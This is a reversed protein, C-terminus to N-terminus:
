TIYAIHVNKGECLKKTRTSKAISFSYKGDCRGGSQVAKIRKFTKRRRDRGNSDFTRLHNRETSAKEKLYRKVKMFFFIKSSSLSEQKHSADRSMVPVWNHWPFSKLWTVKRILHGNDHMANRRGDRFHSERRVKASCKFVLVTNTRGRQESPRYHLPSAIMRSGSRCFDKSMGASYKLHLAKM